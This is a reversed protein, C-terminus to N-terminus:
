AVDKYDKKDRPKYQVHFHFAGGAIKHYLATKKYANTDRHTFNLYEVLEKIQKENFGRSRIDAARWFMHPSSIPRVASATEKYLADHEEPTRFIHTLTIELGYDIQCKKDLTLLIDYLDKSYVKLKHSESEIRPTKFKM